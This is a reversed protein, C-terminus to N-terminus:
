LDQGRNCVYVAYGDGDQSYPMGDWDGFRDAIDFGNDHLLAELELPEFWRLALEWPPRVLEGDPCDWRETCTQVHIQRAPDFRDTGSAFVKRGNPHDLTYWAQPELADVRADPLPYYADFMFRGGDDLHERVRALMADQDACTLMFNIVDGRAFILAFTTDLHFSRVDGEAWRIPLDGTKARAYALSPASLELGTIDVGRQALPITARGIGCGLELVPGQVAGITDFFFTGNVNLEGSALDDLIPDAFASINLSEPM